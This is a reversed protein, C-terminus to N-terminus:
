KSYSTSLHFQEREYSRTSLFLYAAAALFVMLTGARLLPHISISRFLLLGPLVPNGSTLAPPYFHRTNRAKYPGRTGARLLPHISIFSWLSFRSWRPEREYSRTSLFRYVGNIKAAKPNGSTLAPPYFDSGAAKASAGINGSTLAPPYFHAPANTAAAPSNGSTLAPPYFYSVSRVAPM